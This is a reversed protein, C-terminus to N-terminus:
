YAKRSQADGVREFDDLLDRIKKEQAAEFM